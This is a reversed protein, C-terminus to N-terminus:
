HSILVLICIRGQTPLVKAPSLSSVGSISRIARLHQVDRFAFETTGAANTVEPQPTIQNRGPGDFRATSGM